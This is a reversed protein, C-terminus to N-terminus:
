LIAQLYSPIHIKTMRYLLIDGDSLMVTGGYHKKHNTTMFYFMFQNGLWDPSRIASANESLIHNKDM